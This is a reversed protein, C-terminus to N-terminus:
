TEVEKTVPSKRHWFSDQHGALMGLPRLSASLDVLEFNTLGRKYDPLRTQKLVGPAGSREAVEKGGMRQQLFVFDACTNIYQLYNAVVNPEMEQFSVANWFLDVQMNAILPFRWTGFIAISGASPQWRYANGRTVEYSVVSGPFASKLFQECVYLQPPIDFILFNIDPHLKRIVEIQKGSGPGLEVIVKVKGFDIFQCCYSYRMYYYLARFTYVSGDIEIIDEPNGALSCSLAEIPRAGAREGYLRALSYAAFKLDDIRCDYIDVKVPDNEPRNVLVNLAECLRRWGPLQRSYRNNFLRSKQLDCAVTPKLDTAGFNSLVSGRRRRYDRLGASLLEPLFREEYVKWYNTPRFVAPAAATDAIMMDLLEPSDEIQEVKNTNM